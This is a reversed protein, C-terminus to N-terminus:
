EGQTLNKKQWEIDTKLREVEARLETLEAKWKPAVDRVLKWIWDGIVQCGTEKGCEMLKSAESDLDGLFHFPANAKEERLSTLEALVSFDAQEDNARM